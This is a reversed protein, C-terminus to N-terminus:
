VHVVGNGCRLALLLGDGLDEKQYTSRIQTAPQVDHAIPPTEHVTIFIRPTLGSDAFDLM